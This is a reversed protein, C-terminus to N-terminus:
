GGVARAIGSGIPLDIDDPNLHTFPGDIAASCDKVAEQMSHVIAIWSALDDHYGTKEMDLVPGEIAIAAIPKAQRRIVFAASARHSAFSAIEIAFGRKRITDLEPCLRQPRPEDPDRRNSWTLYADLEAEPLAALIARGAFTQDLLRVEGVPASSTVDSTGPTSALRVSYWGVPMVLSTTEGSAFALQDLYPLSFDRLVFRSLLSRHLQDTVAGLVYSSSSQFREIYGSNELANLGRFVTGPVLGLQRSLETVGIPGDAHGVQELIRLARLASSIM